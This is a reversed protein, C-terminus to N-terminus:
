IEFAVAALCCALPGNVDLETGEELVVLTSTEQEM